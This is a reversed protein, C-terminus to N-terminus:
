RLTGAGELRGGRAELRRLGERPAEWGPAAERAREYWLRAEDARGAATAIDGALQAAPAYTPNLEWGRGAAVLAEAPRGRSLLSDARAFHLFASRPARALARRLGARFAPEANEPDGARFREPRFGEIPPPLERPVDRRAYLIARDDVYLLAWGPDERLVPLLGLNMRLKRPYPAHRALVLDVDHRALTARAVDSHRKAQLFELLLAKGYVESRSDLFVRVEPWLEHIAYAAWEYETFLRGSVGWERLLETPRRADLSAGHRDRDWVSRPAATHFEPLGPGWALALLGATCLGATATGAGLSGARRLSLALAVAAPLAALAVVAPVGSDFPARLADRVAWAGCAAAVAAFAGAVARRARDAPHPGRPAARVAALLSVLPPVMGLASLGVWRSHRLPLLAFLTVLLLEPVGLVGRRAAAALAVLAIALLAAFGAAYISGHLYEAALLPQWENVYLTIVSQEATFEFPFVFLAPGIPNVAAAAAMLAALGLLRLRGQGAPRPHLVPRVADAAALLAGGAVVAAAGLGFARPEQGALWAAAGLGVAAAAAAFVRAGPDRRPAPAGPDRPRLLTEALEAGAFLLVLGIGIVFSGHLNAWLLEIPVLAWVARTRRGARSAERDRWLLWLTALFLPLGLLEPRAVVRRRFVTLALVPLPLALGAPARVAAVALLLLAATLLAPLAKAAALVGPIGAAREAAAYLAAALWEHAVYRNGEATFSYRDTRPVAGEDLVLGGTTLHIWVDNNHLPLVGASLAYVLLGAAVAAAAPRWPGRRGSRERADAPPTM